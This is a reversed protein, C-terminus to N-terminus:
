HKVIWKKQIVGRQENKKFCPIVSSKKFAYASLSKLWCLEYFSCLENNVAQGHM